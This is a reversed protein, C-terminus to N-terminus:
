KRKFAIKADPESEDELTFSDKGSFTLTLKADDSKIVLTNGSDSVVTFDKSESIEGLNLALKGAKVDLTFTMAGLMTEILQPMQEYQAKMEPNLEATAKVDCVWTGDGKSLNTDSDGGCAALCLAFLLTILPLLKKM